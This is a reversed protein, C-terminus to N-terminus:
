GVEARLFDILTQQEETWLRRERVDDVIFTYGSGALDIPAGDCDVCFRGNVIKQFLHAFGSIRTYDGIVSSGVFAGSEIVANRGIVAPGMITAGPEIRTCAGISVPGHITSKSLDVSVNIGAWVGPAIERGSMKMFDIEGNLMMRTARWYDSVRGIDIWTFPLALGYFPLQNEVLRPFFEFAIDFPRDEPICDLVSPEFLYIGTNVTTSIAVDPAPKEEFKLIRGTASTQVVGYRGVDKRPLDKLLMTAVSQRERHFQLARTFDLDIIADGCVVAFTGDFFGTQQQIKKLGGAAGLGEPVPRGDAYYGEFSYAIQVGFRSGDRFYHEIDHALYSTSIIIEDFGHQRLLNIVFEMVPKNIIPIMPKPTSESLPRIRTGKGAALIVAKM